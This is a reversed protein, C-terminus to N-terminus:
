ASAWDWGAHCAAKRVFNMHVGPLGNSLYNYTFPIPFPTRTPVPRPWTRPSPLRSASITAGQGQGKGTVDLDYRVFQNDTEAIAEGNLFVTAITDSM